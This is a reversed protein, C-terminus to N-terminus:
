ARFNNIFNTAGVDDLKNFFSLFNKRMQEQLEHLPIGLIVSAKQYISDIGFELQDDTELLLRELPVLKLSQEHKFIRHGFSFFSPYKLLEKIEQENGNFDHFLRNINSNKKKFIELYDSVTHVSHLIIPCERRFALELHKSLVYKQDDLSAIGKRVRDLGCEGVVLFSTKEEQMRQWKRDFDERSFPTVLEWPHVGLSHEGVVVAYHGFGKSKHHSHADIYM